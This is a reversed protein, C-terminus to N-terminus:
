SRRTLGRLPMRLESSQDVTTGL